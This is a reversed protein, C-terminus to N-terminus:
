KRTVTTRSPRAAKRKALATLAEQARDRKLASFVEALTKCEVKKPIAGLHNSVSRLVDTDAVFIVKELWELAALKRLAVAEDIAKSGISVQFAWREGSPLCVLLDAWVEGLRVECKARLGQGEFKERLKAVLYHHLAGGRGKRPKLHYGNEELWKRGKPTAEYLSPTRGSKGLKVQVPRIFGRHALEERAKLERKPSWGLAKVREMVSLEPREYILALVKKLDAEGDPDTLALRVRPRVQRLLRSAMARGREQAERQDINRNIGSPFLRIHVPHTWRGALKLVAEYEELHYAAKLQEMSLGMCRGMDLFDEGRGLPLLLKAYSAAKAASALFTPLHDTLIHGFGFERSQLLFETFTPVGQFLKKEEKAPLISKCEDIVLVNKLRQKGETMRKEIMSVLLCGLLFSRVEPNLGELLLVVNEKLLEDVPIGQSCDVVGELALCITTLRGIERERVKAEESYPRLKRTKEYELLDLLSPYERRGQFVGYAKYLSHISRYLVGEGATMVELAKRYVNSVLQAHRNPDSNAPVELPNFRMDKLDLIYLGAEKALALYDMKLDAIFVKIGFSILQPVVLEVLNTKGTGPSGCILLGRNLEEPYLGVMDGTAVVVGIPIPGSIRERPPFPFFPDQRVIQRTAKRKLVECLMKLYIQDDALVAREMAALYEEGCGSLELLRRTRFLLDETGM